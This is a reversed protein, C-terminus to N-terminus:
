EITVCFAASTQGATSSKIEMRLFTNPSFNLPSGFINISTTQTGSPITNSEQIVALNTIDYLQIKHDGDGYTTVIITNYFYEDAHFYVFPQYSDSTTSFYSFGIRRRNLNIWNANGANVSQARYFSKRTSRYWISGISYGATTDSNISPGSTTVNNKPVVQNDVQLTLPTFNKTATISQSTNTSCVNTLTNSAFNITKNTLTQSVNKINVGNYLLNGGNTLDLDDGTIKMRQVNSGIFSLDDNDKRILYKNVSFQNEFSLTCNNAINNKLEISNAGNLNAEFSKLGSISQNTALTVRNDLESKINTTQGELHKLYVDSNVPGFVNNIQNLALPDEIFRSAKTSSGINVQNLNNLNFRSSTINLFNITEVDITTSNLASLFSVYFRNNFTETRSDNTHFGMSVGTRFIANDAGCIKVSGTPFDYSITHPFFLDSADRVALFGTNIDVSYGSSNLKIGSISQNGTTKVTNNLQTQLNSTVGTLNGLDINSDAMTVIRTNGATINGCDFQMRKTENLNDAIIFENDTTTVDTSAAITGSLQHIINNNDVFNLRNTSTNVWCSALYVNGSLGSQFLTQQISTMIPLKIVKNSITANLLCYGMNYSLNNDGLSLCGSLNNYDLFSISPSRYIKFLEPNTDNTNIFYNPGVTVYRDFGTINLVASGSTNNILIQTAGSDKTFDASENFIKKSNIQQNNTNTDFLGGQVGILKSIENVTLVNPPSTQINSPPINFGGSINENIIISDVILNKENSLNKKILVM